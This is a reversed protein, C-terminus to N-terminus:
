QAQNAINCAHADYFYGFHFMPADTKVPLRRRCCSATRGFARVAARVAVREVVWVVEMAVEMAVVETAEVAEEAAMAAGVKEAGM